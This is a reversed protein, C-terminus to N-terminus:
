NLYDAPILTGIGLIKNPDLSKKIAAMQRVGSEGLMEILYPVKVKGVGHEASITGGMKVAESIFTKYVEKGKLFEEENHPLINTHLHYNGIHGFIVFKFSSNDLWHHYINMLERFKGQPVAIDSSIKKVKNFSLFENIQSPLAHRYEKFFDMDKQNQAFWSSEIDANMEVALNFWQELLVEENEATCEQEFLIAGKSNLPTKPYKKSLFILSQEDFFEISLASLKNPITRNSESLDIVKDVFDLLDNEKPFFIVGSFLKTLKRTLKLKAETIVGLTGESGIFLDILDMDPASYYGAAHKIDPMKYDPLIISYSREDSSFSIHGNNSKFEGRKIKVFDGQPLVVSIEEVWQRTSGYYYTRAGSANTAITGGIFANRETPDPPYMLGTEEVHMQLDRLTIGCETRVFGSENNPKEVNIIKNLKDTALIIGGNTVRGGTTGTGNGSVTIKTGTQNAKKVLEQVDQTSEPFYVGDINESRLGSTDNLYNQIEDPNTKIIM